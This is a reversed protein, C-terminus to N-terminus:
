DGMPTIRFERVVALKRLAAALRSTNEPNTTRITMRYEFCPGGPTTRYSMNAVTFGHEALLARVEEESMARSPRLPHGGVLLDPGGMPLAPRQIGDCLLHAETPAGYVPIELTWCERLALRAM